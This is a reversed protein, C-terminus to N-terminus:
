VGWRRALELGDDKREFVGELQADLLRDLLIKFGPGPRFGLLVLDDGTVLPELPLGEPKPVLGLRATQESISQYEAPHNPRLLQHAHFFSHHHILRKQRAITATPWLTLLEARTLLLDRLGDTEDNSLCLAKRWRAALAVATPRELLLAPNAARDIAWAALAQHFPADPPLAALVPRPGAATAETLAPADLTLSELIEAARARAPGLLMRRLEDGIRERSVGALRAAHTRIASATAPEIPFGLRASFRVARLARLHDEALRADPTGVARIVGAHLDALGHVFDIVRGHVLVRQGRVDVHSEPAFPDLFLANITFDRRQADTPADTFEVSDPRRQDSYAGERRFTAVETSGRADAPNASAFPVHMVGFAAGVLRARPFLQRVRQPHADTAVDYDTPRLGLLEDRVCGGAFYAVHGAERLSRVVRCAAERAAVPDTAFAM